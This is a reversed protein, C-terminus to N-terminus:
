LQQIGLLVLDQGLERLHLVAQVGGSQVLVGEFSGSFGAEDQAPLEAGDPVLLAPAVGVGPLQLQVNVLLDEGGVNLSNM